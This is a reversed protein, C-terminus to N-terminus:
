FYLFDRKLLYKKTLFYKLSNSFNKFKHLDWDGAANWHM